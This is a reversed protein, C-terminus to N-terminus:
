LYKIFGIEEAKERFEQRKMMIGYKRIIGMGGLRGSLRSPRGGKSGPLGRVPLNFPNTGPRPPQKGGGGRLATHGATFMIRIPEDDDKILDSIVDSDKLVKDKYLLRMHEAEVNCGEKALKKVDRIATSPEMEVEFADMGALKFKVAMLDGQSCAAAEEPAADLKLASMSEVLTAAM